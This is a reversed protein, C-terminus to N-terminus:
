GRGNDDHIGLNKSYLEDIIVADIYRFIEALPYDEEAIENCLFPSM